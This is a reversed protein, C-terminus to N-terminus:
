PHDTVLTKAAATAFLNGAADSILGKLTVIAGSLSPKDRIETVQWSLEVEQGVKVAQYTTCSFEIGVGVRGSPQSFHTGVLATMLSLLHGGTVIISGFRTKSAFYTDSHIPSEDGIVAAFKKVEEQNLIIKRKFQEGVEIGDM